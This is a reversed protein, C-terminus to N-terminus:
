RCACREDQLVPLEVLKAWDDMVRKAQIARTTGPEFTMKVGCVACFATAWQTNYAPPTIWNVPKKCCPCRCAQSLFEGVDYRAM